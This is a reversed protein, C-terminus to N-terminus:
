PCTLTFEINTDVQNGWGDWSTIEIDCASVQINTGNDVYFVTGGSEYYGDISVACEYLSSSAGNNPFAFSFTPEQDWEIRVIKGGMIFQIRYDGSFNGCSLNSINSAVGDVTGTNNNFACTPIIQQCEGCSGGCDVGTEDEDLYGNYCHGPYATETIIAVDTRLIQKRCSSLLFTILLLYIAYKM